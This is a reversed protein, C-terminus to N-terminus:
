RRYTPAALVAGGAGALVLIATSPEHPGAVVRRSWCIRPVVASPTIEPCVRHGAFSCIAEMWNPGPPLSITAAMDRAMPMVSMGRLMPGPNTEASWRLIPVVTSPIMLGVDSATRANCCRRLRPRQYFYSFVHYFSAGVFFFHRFVVAFYFSSLCEFVSRVM